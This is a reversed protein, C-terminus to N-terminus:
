DLKQRKAFAARLIKEEEGDDEKYEQLESFKRDANSPEMKPALDGVEPPNPRKRYSRRIGQTMQQPKLTTAAEVVTAQGQAAKDEEEMKLKEAEIVDDFQKRWQENKRRRDGLDVIPQLGEVDIGSLEFDTMNTDVSWRFINGDEPVTKSGRKKSASGRGVAARGRRRVPSHTTPQQLRLEVGDLENLESDKEEVFLKVLREFARVLANVGEKGPVDRFYVCLWLFFARCDPGDLQSMWSGSRCACKWFKPRSGRVRWWSELVEVSRELNKRVRDPTLNGDQAQRRMQQYVRSDVDENAIIKDSPIRFHQYLDTAAILEAINKLKPGREAITHYEKTRRAVAGGSEDQADDVRGTARTTANRAASPRRLCRDSPLGSGSLRRPSQTETLELGPRVRPPQANQAEEAETRGQAKEQIPKKTHEDGTASRKQIRASQRTGGGFIKPRGASPKPGAASSPPDQKAPAM